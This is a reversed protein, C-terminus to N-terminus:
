VLPPAAGPLVGRRRQEEIWARYDHRYCPGEGLGPGEGAVQGALRRSAVPGLWSLQSRVGSTKRTSFARIRLHPKLVRALNWAVRRRAQVPGAESFRCKMQSAM